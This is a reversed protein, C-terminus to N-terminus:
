CAEDAKRLIDSFSRELLSYYSQVADIKADTATLGSNARDIRELLAKIHINWRSAKTHLSHFYRFKEDEKKRIKSPIFTKFFLFCSIGCLLMSATLFGRDIALLPIDMFAPYIKPVMSLVVLVGWSMAVHLLMLLIGKSLLGSIAAVATMIIAKTTNGNGIWGVTEPDAIWIYGILSLCLLMGLLAFFRKHRPIKFKKKLAQQQEALAKGAAGIVTGTICNDTGIAGCKKLADALGSLNKYALERRADFLIAKEYLEVAQANNKSNCALHYLAQAYAQKTDATCDNGESVALAKELTFNELMRVEEGELFLYDTGSTPAPKTQPKPAPKPAPSVPEQVTWTLEPAPSEEKLAQFIMDTLLQDKSAPESAVTKDQPATEHAANEAAITRRFADAFEEYYQAVIKTSKLYYAKQREDLKMREAFSVAYEVVVATRGALRELTPLIFKWSPDYGSQYVKGWRGYFNTNPAPTLQKVIDPFLCVAYFMHTPSAMLLKQCTSLDEDCFTDLQTLYKVAEDCGESVEQPYTGKEAFEIMELISYKDLKLKYAM